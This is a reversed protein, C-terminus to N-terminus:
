YVVFSSRFNSSSHEFVIPDAVLFNPGIAGNEPFYVLVVSSLRIVHKVALYQLRFVLTVAAIFIWV